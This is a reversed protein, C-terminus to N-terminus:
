CFTLKYFDCMPGQACQLLTNQKGVGHHKVVGQVTRHVATFLQRNPAVKAAANWYHILHIELHMLIM